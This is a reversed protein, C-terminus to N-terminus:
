GQHIFNPRNYAVKFGYRVMNRFSPSPHNPTEEATEVVIVKAGYAAADAIRSLTLLGQAGKGRHETLTAAFGMWAMRKHIFMSAAAVPHNGDFALYHYWNPREVTTSMWNELAVPWEFAEVIIRAFQPALDRGIRKVILGSEVGEVPSIDRYLKVWNNYHTLGASLLVDRSSGHQMETHTVFFRSVGSGRYLDV